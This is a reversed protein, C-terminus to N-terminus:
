NEEFFFCVRAHKSHVNTWMGSMGLTNFMYYDEQQDNFTFYIFKGKCNVDKLLVPYQFRSWGPIEQKKGYRGSIIGVSKLTKGRFNQLWDVTKKVEPGEPM